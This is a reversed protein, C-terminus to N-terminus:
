KNYYIISFTKTEEHKRSRIEIKEHERDADLGIKNVSDTPIRLDQTSKITILMPPTASIHKNNTCVPYLALFDNVNYIESSNSHQLFISKSRQMGVGRNKLRETFVNQLLKTPFSSVFSRKWLAKMSKPASLTCIKSILMRFKGNLRRIPPSFPFLDPLHTGARRLAEKSDAEFDTQVQHLSSQQCVTQIRILHWTVWISMQIRALQM